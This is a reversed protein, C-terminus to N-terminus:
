RRGAELAGLVRDVAQRTEQQRAALSRLSDGVEDLKREFSKNTIDQREGQAELASIRVELPRQARDSEERIVSRASASAWGLLTVLAVGAGLLAPM